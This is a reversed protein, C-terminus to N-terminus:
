LKLQYSQVFAKGCGPHDCKHDRTNEHIAKIHHRLSGIGKLVMGCKDCTHDELETQLTIIRWLDSLEKQVATDFVLPQYFFQLLEHPSVKTADKNRQQRPVRNLKNLKRLEEIQDIKKPTSSKM